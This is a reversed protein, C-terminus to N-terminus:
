SPVDMGGWRVAEGAAWDRDAADQMMGEYDPEYYQRDCNDEDGDMCPDCECGWYDDPPDLPLDKIQTM